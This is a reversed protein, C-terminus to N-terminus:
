ILNVELKRRGWKIADACNEFWIDIYNGNRYRQHMRDQCVYERGKIIVKTGLKLFAPCAVAGSYVQRGSAMLNKNLCYGTVEYTTPLILISLLTLLLKTKM